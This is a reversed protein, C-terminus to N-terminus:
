NEPTRGFNRTNEWTQYSFHYGGQLQLIVGRLNNKLITKIIYSVVVVIFLASVYIQRPYCINGEWSTKLKEM